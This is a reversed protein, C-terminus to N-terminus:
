EGKIQTNYTDLLEQMAANLAERLEMVSKANSNGIKMNLLASLAQFPNMYWKEASWAQTVVKTDKDKVNKLWCLEWYGDNYRLMVPDKGDHLKIEAMKM